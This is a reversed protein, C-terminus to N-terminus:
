SPYLLTPANIFSHRKHKGVEWFASQGSLYLKKKIITIGLQDKEDKRMVPGRIRAFREVIKM